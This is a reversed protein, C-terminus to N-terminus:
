YMMAGDCMEANDIFARKAASLGPKFEIDPYVKTPLTFVAARAEVTQGDATRLIVGKGTQEVEKVVTGLRVDAKSDDLIAKALAATGGNAIHWHKESDTFTFPDWSALAFLKVFSAYSFVSTPAGAYLV